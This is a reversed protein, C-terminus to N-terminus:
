PSKEPPIVEVKVSDDFGKTITQVTSAAPPILASAALGGLGIGTAALAAGILASKLPSSPTTPQSQAVNYTNRTIGAGTATIDNTTLGWSKAHAARRIALNGAIDANVLDTLDSSASSM